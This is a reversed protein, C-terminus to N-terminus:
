LWAQIFIFPNRDYKRYSKKRISILEDIKPASLVQPSINSGALNKAIRKAFNENKRRRAGKSALSNGITITKRYKWDRLHAEQLQNSKGWSCKDPSLCIRSWMPTDWSFLLCCASKSRGFGWNGHQSRRFGRNGHQSHQAPPKSFTNKEKRKINPAQM